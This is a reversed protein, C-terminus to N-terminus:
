CLLSVTYKAKSDLLMVSNEEKDWLGVYGEQSSPCDYCFKFAEDEKNKTFGVFVAQEIFM